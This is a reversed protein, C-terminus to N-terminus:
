ISTKNPDEPSKMHLFKRIQAYSASTSRKLLKLYTQKADDPLTIASHIDTLQEKKLVAVIERYPVDSKCYHKEAIEYESGTNSDIATLMDKHSKYWSALEARDFPFYKSIIYDTMYQKEETNLNKMIVEVLQYKIYQGRKFSDDVINMSRKLKRSTKAPVSSFPFRETYYALFNWRYDEARLCLLKEVPNNFLYAIASRIKKAETKVASGFASEFLEGKRGTFANFERAYVSSCVSIYDSMQTRNETRLLMHVHDIMLCLGMLRVRYTPAKVSAITYYVLFDELTYFLNFGSKTRQYIHMVGDASFRRKMAIRM